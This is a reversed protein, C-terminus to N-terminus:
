MEMGSDIDHGRDRTPAAAIEPKKEPAPAPKPSFFLRKIKEQELKSSIAGQTSGDNSYM